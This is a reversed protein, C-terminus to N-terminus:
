TKFLCIGYVAETGAAKLVAACTELTAGTTFVDDFLLVRQPPQKVAFIKGKLNNARDAANLEKQSKAAERRLCRSLPASKEIIRAISEIQDFGESKIKGPRPPVPVFVLPTEAANQAEDFFAGRTKLIKEAFFHSLHRKGRFKYERLLSLWRATYPYISFAKEYSRTESARCYLCVGIESILPTGCVACRPSTSDIEFDAACDACIGARAEHGTVLPRSCLPCLSPFFAERLLVLVGFLRGDLHRCKLRSLITTSM